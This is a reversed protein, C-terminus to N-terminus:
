RLCGGRHLPPDPLFFPKTVPGGTNHLVIKKEDKERRREQLGKRSENVLALRAQSALKGPICIGTLQTRQNPNGWLIRTAVQSAFIRSLDSIEPRVFSTVINCVHINTHTHIFKWSTFTSFPPFPLRAYMYIKNPSVTKAHTGRFRHFIREQIIGSFCLIRTRQPFGFRLRHRRSRQIQLFKFLTSKALDIKGSIKPYLALNSTRLAIFFKSFFKISWM